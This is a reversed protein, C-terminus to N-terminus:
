RTLSFRIDIDVVHRAPEDTPSAVPTGWEFQELKPGSRADRAPEYRMDFLQYTGRGEGYYAEVGDRIAERSAQEDGKGSGLSEPKITAVEAVLIHNRPLKVVGGLGTNGPIYGRYKSDSSGVPFLGWEYDAALAGCLRAVAQLERDTAALLEAASEPAHSLDRLTIAVARVFTPVTYGETIEGVMSGSLDRSTAVFTDPDHVPLDLGEYKPIASM